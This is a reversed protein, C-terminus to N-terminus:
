VDTVKYFLPPGPAPARKKALARYPALEGETAEARKKVHWKLAKGDALWSLLSGHCRELDSCLYM